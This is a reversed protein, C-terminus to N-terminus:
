DNLLRLPRTDGDQREGPVGEPGIDGGIKGGGVWGKPQEEPAPLSPYAGEEIKETKDKAQSEGPGSVEWVSVSVYM